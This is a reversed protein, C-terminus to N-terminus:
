QAVSACCVIVAPTQRKWAGRWFGEVFSEVFEEIVSYAPHAHRTLAPLHHTTGSVAQLGKSDISFNGQLDPYQLQCDNSV